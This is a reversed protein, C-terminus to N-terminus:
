ARRSRRVLEYGSGALVLGALVLGAIEVGTRPLRGPRRSAPQAPAAQAGGGPAAVEGGDDGEDTAPPELALASTTPLTLTFDDSAAVSDVSVPQTLENNRYAADSGALVLQLRHGAEVRHVIGPLEITVPETVDPVRTPSVLRNVLTPDGEPPVDYLKAFVLLQGEPGLPDQTGAVVPSTFQVELEPVGVVDLDGALPQTTWAGFTCPEDPCPLDSPPGPQEPAASVESFSSPAGGPLNAWAVSGGAVDGADPVLGGDGSLFLQERGGVPYSPASTYADNADGDFEWSRYYAFDDYDTGDQGELHLAFWDLIRRGLYTRDIQDTDYDLEGPAPQGGGSHGWSQWIMQTGPNATKLGEYNAVAEQLNFLTDNQGQILLVPVDIDDMYSAVSVPRTFAITTADPYGDTDLQVKADCTGERFNLTTCLTTPDVDGTTAGELGDAIGLGFFATAWGVKETGPTEHTVSGPNSDRDFSANNPALSYQLDNWTILPVLTDIRDDVAAAAFQVQGGYSGGVMGVVPDPDGTTGEDTISDVTIQIGDSTRTATREGALVDVLESAAEGDYVPDDLYIVCTSQPFGLGTYSLVAYGRDNLAEAFTAQDGKDGGFGNTTLIAPYPGPMDEDDPLYLDADVTCPVDDPGVMVEVSLTTKGPGATVTAAPVAAPGAGPEAPPALPAPAPDEPLPVEPLEPLPVEAADLAPPVPVPLPAEDQPGGPVLVGPDPVLPDAQAPLAGLAGLALASVVAGAGLLRVSRTRSSSSLM